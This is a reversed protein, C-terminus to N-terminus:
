KVEGDHVCRLRGATHPHPERHFHRLNKYRSHGEEVAVKAPHRQNESNIADYQQQLRPKRLAASSNSIRFTPALPNNPSPSVSQKYICPTLHIRSAVRHLANLSIGLVVECAPSIVEFCVVGLFTM